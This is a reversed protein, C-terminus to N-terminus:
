TIYVCVCVCVYMYETKREIDRSSHFWLTSRFDLALYTNSKLFELYFAM